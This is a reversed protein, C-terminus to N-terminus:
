RSWVNLTLKTFKQPSTSWPSSRGGNKTLRFYLGSRGLLRRGMQASWLHPLEATSHECGCDGNEHAKTNRRRM